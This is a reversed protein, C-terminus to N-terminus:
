KRVLSSILEPRYASTWINFPYGALFICQISPIEMTRRTLQPITGETYLLDKRLVLGKSVRDQFDLLFRNPDLVNSIDRAFSIVVLQERSSLSFFPIFIKSIEEPLQKTWFEQATYMSPYRFGNSFLSKISRVTSEDLISKLIEVHPIDEMVISYLGHYILNPKRVVQNMIDDIDGRSLSGSYFYYLRELIDYLTFLTKRYKRYLFISLIRTIPYAFNLCNCEWVVTNWDRIFINTGRREFPVLFYKPNQSSKYCNYLNKLFSFDYQLNITALPRYETPVAYLDVPFFHFVLDDSEGLLGRKKFQNNVCSSYDTVTPCFDGKVITAGRVGQIFREQERAFTDLTLARLPKNILLYPGLQSKYDLDAIVYQFILVLIEDPLSSLYNYEQPSLIIPQNLLRQGEIQEVRTFFDSVRKCGVNIDNTPPQNLTSLFKNISTLTPPQSESGGILQNIFPHDRQLLCDNKKVSLQRNPSSERKRKRYPTQKM